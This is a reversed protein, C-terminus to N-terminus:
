LVRIGVMEGPILKMGRPIEIQMLRGYRPINLDTWLRTPLAEVRPAIYKIGSRGIQKPESRKVIEVETNVKFHGAFTENVYAIISSPKEETISMVPFDPLIIVEGVQCDISSVYGDCPATLVVETRRAEIENYEEELAKKALEVVRQAENRETGPQPLYQVYKERRYEADKLEQEYKALVGKDREIKNILIDRSTTMTKLQNNLIIDTAINAGNELRFNKIELETTELSALDSELVTNADLINQKAIVIDATFARMEAWWESQRNFIDAEYNKRLETLQADLAGIQAKIVAAEAELREDDATTNVVAVPDGKSVKKFIQVSISVVRARTNTGIDHVEADAVGVIEFQGARHQFMLVVSTVAGLWVLVPLVRIILRSNRLRIRGM